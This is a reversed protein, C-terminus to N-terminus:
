NALSSADFSGAPPATEVENGEALKFAKRKIRDIVQVAKRTREAFQKPTLQTADKVEEPLVADRNFARIGANLLDQKDKKDVAKLADMTLLFDDVGAWDVENPRILPGQTEKGNETRTQLTGAGSLSDLANKYSDFLGRTYNVRRARRDEEAYQARLKKDEASTTAKEAKLKDEKQKEAVLENFLASGWYQGLGANNLAEQSYAGDKILSRLASSDQGSSQEAQRAKQADLELKFKNQAVPDETVLSSYRAGTELMRAAKESQNITTDNKIADLEGYFNANTAASDQKRRYEDRANLLDLKYKDLQARNMDMQLARQEDEQQRARQIDRAQQIGGFTQKILGYAQARTQPNKIGSQAYQFYRGQLPTIDADVAFSPINQEAM